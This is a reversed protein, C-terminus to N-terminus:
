SDTRGRGTERLARQDAILQELKARSVAGEVIADGFVFAPSGRLRLAEALRANAQIRQALEVSAMDRRLRDVDLGLEEAISVILAEGPEGRIQLLAERYSWYAGQRQAALAARAAYESDPGLLPWDVIVHKLNGDAAVLAAVDPAIVKCFPCRYDFFEVLVLDGEPNGLSPLVPDAFLQRRLEEATMPEAQPADAGAFDPMPIELFGEGSRRASALRSFGLEDPGSLNLAEEPEERGGIFLAAILLVVLILWGQTARSLRGRRSPAGATSRPNGAEPQEQQPPETM